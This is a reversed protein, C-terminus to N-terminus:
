KVTFTVDNSQMSQGGKRAIVFVKYSGPKAYLDKPVGATVLDGAINGQLLTGNFEIAAVDGTLPQNVHIWLAASGDPQKNFAVGAPTSEPGWSTIKLSGPVASSAAIAQPSSASPTETQAAQHNGCAALVLALSAAVACPFIRNHIAM